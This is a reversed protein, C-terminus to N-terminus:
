NNSVANSRAPRCAIGRSRAMCTAVLVFSWSKVGISTKMKALDVTEVVNVHHLTSAICFEQTLKKIYERETENKRRKRFEQM